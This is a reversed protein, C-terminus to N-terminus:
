KHRSITIGTECVHRRKCEWQCKNNNWWQDSNRKRKDFKYKCQCSVHKKLLTSENIGIIM